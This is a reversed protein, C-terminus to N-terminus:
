CSFDNLIFIYEKSSTTEGVHNSMFAYNVRMYKLTEQNQCILVIDTIELHDFSANSYMKTSNLSLKIRTGTDLCLQTNIKHPPM